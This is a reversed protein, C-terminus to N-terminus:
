CATATHHLPPSQSEGKELQTNWGELHPNQRVLRHFDSETLSKSANFMILVVPTKEDVKPLKDVQARSLGQEEEEVQSELWARLADTSVREKRKENWLQGRDSARKLDAPRRPTPKEKHQRIPKLGILADDGAPKVTDAPSGEPDDLFLKRFLSASIRPKRKEGHRRVIIPKPPLPNGDKDKFM